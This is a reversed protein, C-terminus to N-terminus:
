EKAEKRKLTKLVDLNDFMHTKLLKLKEEDEKMLGLEKAKKLTNELEEKSMQFIGRQPQAFPLVKDKIEKILEKKNM